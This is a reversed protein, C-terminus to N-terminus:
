PKTNPSVPKSDISPKSEPLDSNRLIAQLKEPSIRSLPPGTVWSPLEPVRVRDPQILRDNGSSSQCASLALLISLKSLLLIANKM